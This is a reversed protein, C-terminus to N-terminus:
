SIKYSYDLCKLILEYNEPIIKIKREKGEPFFWRKGHIIRPDKIDFSLPEIRFCIESDNINTKIASFQKDNDNRKYYYWSNRAIPYCDFNAEIKSILEEINKRNQISTWGLKYKWSRTEDKFLIEAPNNNDGLNTLIKSEQSKNPQINYSKKSNGDELQTNVLNRTWSDYERHCTKCLFIFHDEIPTHAVNIEDIIKQLDDIEYEDDNTKYNNLVNRIIEPRSSGHKHAADLEKKENCKQCKYDLLNKSRKTMTAVNNRVRPDIFYTFEKLTCILKAM